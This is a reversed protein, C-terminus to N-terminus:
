DYNKELHQYIKNAIVENGMPSFHRDTIGKIDSLLLKNVSSYEGLSMCDFDVFHRETPCVNRDIDYPMWLVDIDKNTLWATLIDIDQLLKKFAYERNFFLGIYLEYYQRISGSVDNVGNLSLQRKEDPIQLLVRSLISPQITVLIDTTDNLGSVTEYVTNFILENGAQSTGFNEYDCNLLRSLCGPYSEQNMLQSLEYRDYERTPDKDLIRRINPNNLGGGETFSCGFSYLKKYQKM